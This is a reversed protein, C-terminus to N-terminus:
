REDGEGHEVDEGLCFGSRPEERHYGLFHWGVQDRNGGHIPDGLFGELTLKVLWEFFLRAFPDQDQRVTALVEDRVEPSCDAFPLASREMAHQDLMGCGHVFIRALPRLFPEGLAKGLYEGVGAENAGPGEDSPLIRGSAAELTPVLAALEPDASTARTASPSASM